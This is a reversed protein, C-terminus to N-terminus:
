VIVYGINDLIKGVLKRVGWTIGVIEGIIGLVVDGALIERRAVSVDEDGERAQSVAGCGVAGRRAVQEESLVTRM